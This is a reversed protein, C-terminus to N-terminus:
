CTVQVARPCAVSDCPGNGCGACLNYTLSGNYYVYPNAGPHWGFPDWQTGPTPLPYPRAAPALPVEDKEIVTERILKGDGDFERITTTSM